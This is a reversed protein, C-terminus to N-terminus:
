GAASQKLGGGLARYLDVANTLRLLRVQVLTQEASFLERQADLVDLSSAIGNQYRQEALRMRDRQAEVVRRQAEAQEDIAGRAVLGDAVERFAVQISKEYDAVAVSKRVETISLNAQNRGADFIPLVLQPVFSWTRTGADFLGSLDASATGLGATLSIRPFFAARAAGINANAAKLRLENARIDPRRALLDSPLGAPLDTVIQQSSLSLGQPLDGAPRGVLLTLANAAQGRQRVLTALAARATEVLIENQRLDLASSAGVEFRQKALKYASERSELTRRALAEQEALAQESLYAKAVEAVLSIHAANRAEETALYQSLAADNLSRVRGFFDLEFSALSLGVQYTSGVVSAGTPSVAGSTRARSGSATGAVTPLVDAAVIRYQARAEEIRLAATRLDRNNALAAEILAQLRPDGFFERWGSDASVGGAQTRLPEGAPFSSAVPADPRQYVPALSCASLVAAALVTMTFRAIRMNNM